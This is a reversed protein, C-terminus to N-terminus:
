RPQGLAADIEGDSKLKCIGWLCIGPCAECRENRRVGWFIVGPNEPEGHRRELKEVRRKIANM